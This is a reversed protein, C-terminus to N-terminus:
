VTFKVTANEGSAGLRQFFSLVSRDELGRTIETDVQSLIHCVFSMCGM